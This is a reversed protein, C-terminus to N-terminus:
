KKVPVIGLGDTLLVKNEEPYIIIKGSRVISGEKELRPNGEVVLKKEEEFYTGYDGHIISEESEIVVNGRAVMEKREGFRELEVCRLTSKVEGEKSLFEIKPEETIHTYKEDEFHEFLKGSMRVNNVKDTFVVQDKAELNKYDKGKAKLYAGSYEYDERFIRANGFFGAYSDSDTGSYSEMKDGTMVTVTRVKEKKESETEDKKAGPASDDKVEYSVRALLTDNEISTTKTDTNYVAREGTIFTEKGFVFPHNEMVLKDEKEYFVATESIVTYEGDEMIVGGELSTKNELLYRKMYPATIKTLKNSSNYYQLIPRGQMTILEQIKDYDAKAAKFTIRNEPDEVKVGGHLHGFIADEGIVEIKYSTLRVKRHQIWAGESLSYVTMPIGKYPKTEQTLSGGGWGAPINKRPKNSKELNPKVSTSGDIVPTKGFYPMLLPPRATHIFFICLVPALLKKM